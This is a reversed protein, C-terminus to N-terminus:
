SARARELARARQGHPADQCLRSVSAEPMTGDILIGAPQPGAALGATRRMCAKKPRLLQLASYAGMAQPLSRRQTARLAHLQPM